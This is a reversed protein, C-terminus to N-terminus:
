YYRSLNENVFYNSPLESSVSSYQYELEYRISNKLIGNFKVTCDWVNPDTQTDCMDKTITAKTYKLPVSNTALLTVEIQDPRENSVNEYDYWNIKLKANFFGDIDVSKKMEANAFSIFLFLTILMFLIKKKM